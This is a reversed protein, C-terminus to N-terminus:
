CTHTRARILRETRELEATATCSTLRPAAVVVVVVVDEVKGGRLAAEEEEEVEIAV